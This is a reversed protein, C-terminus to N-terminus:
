IEKEIKRERKRKIKEVKKAQKHIFAHTDRGRERESIVWHLTNTSHQYEKIQM